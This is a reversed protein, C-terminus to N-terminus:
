ASLSANNAPKKGPPKKIIKEISKKMEDASTVVSSHVRGPFEPQLAGTIKKLNDSDSTSLFHLAVNKHRSLFEKAAATAQKWDFVDGDTLVVMNKNEASKQLLTETFSIAPAIESGLGVFCDPNLLSVDRTALTYPEKSFLVFISEKQVKEKLGSVASYIIGAPTEDNLEKYPSRMSGSQDVIFLLDADGILGRLSAQLGDNERKLARNEDAAKKNFNGELSKFDEIISQFSKNTM